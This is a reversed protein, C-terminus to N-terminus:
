NHAPHHQCRECLCFFPFSWKRNWQWLWQQKGRELTWKWELGLGSVFLLIATFGNSQMIYHTRKNVFYKIKLKQCGFDRLWMPKALKWLFIYPFLFNTYTFIATYYSNNNLNTFKLTIAYSKSFFLFAKLLNCTQLWGVYSLLVEIQFLNKFPQPNQEVTSYRALMVLVQPEIGPVVFLLFCLDRM